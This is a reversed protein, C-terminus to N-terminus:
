VCGRKMPPTHLVNLTSTWRRSGVMAWTNDIVIKIDKSTPITWFSKIIQEYKVQFFKNPWLYTNNSFTRSWSSTHFQTVNIIFKEKESSTSRMCKAKIIQIGKVRIRRCPLMAIIKLIRINAWIRFCSSAMRHSKNVALQIDYTSAITLIIEFINVNQICIRTRIECM